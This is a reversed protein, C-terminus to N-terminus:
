HLMAAGYFGGTSSVRPIRFDNDILVQVMNEVDIDRVIIIMLKM